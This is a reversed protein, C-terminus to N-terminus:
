RCNSLGQMSHLKLYEQEADIADQLQKAYEAKKAEDFETDAKEAAEAAAEAARMAWVIKLVPSSAMSSSMATAFASASAVASAVATMKEAAATIKAVLATMKATLARELTRDEGTIWKVAWQEVFEVGCHRAHNELARAVIVTIAANRAEDPAALWWVWLRDKPPVDAWPGGQRTLVELRTM